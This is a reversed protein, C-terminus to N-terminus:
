GMEFRSELGGVRQKRGTEGRKAYTVAVRLDDLGERLLGAAASEGAASKVIVDEGDKGLVDGVEQAELHDEGHVSTSLGDLSGHLERALPSVLLYSSVHCSIGSGM